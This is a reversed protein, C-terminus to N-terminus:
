CPFGVGKDRCYQRAHKECFHEAPRPYNSDRRASRAIWLAPTTCEPVSCTENHQYQLDEIQKQTLQKLCAVDEIGGM